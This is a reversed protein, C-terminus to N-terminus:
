LTEDMSLEHSDAGAYKVCNDLSTSSMEGVTIIREDKGFTRENIEKLFEHVHRGDTYFRRGDGEEDDEFYEPKSILNVVDFRFGYVGKDMWFKLIDVIEDRVEPNEWNLDAQTKDFLHLYYEDFAEVYEWANGGFKSIWNTPASGDQKGKRFYYYNKYKEEGALAKQFWVHETSTHNFVMDLMIDIGRKKAERCLETFDEMTGYRPDIARYDEVDYGNDRQPSVFMANFWIYEIGLKQLYDLRSIVGQLDVWGDGNSDQFSKPYIQYVTKEKFNM